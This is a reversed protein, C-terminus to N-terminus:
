GLDEEQKRRWNDIADKEFRWDYGIKFAPLEGRKLLRYITATHVKLYAALENVNMLNWNPM